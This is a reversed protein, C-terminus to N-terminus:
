SGSPWSEEPVRSPRRSEDDSTAALPEQSGTPPFPDSKGVGLIMKIRGDGGKVAFQKGKSVKRLYRGTRRRYKKESIVRVAAEKQTRLREQLPISGPVSRSYMKEM